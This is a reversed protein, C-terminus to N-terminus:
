RVSGRARPSRPQTISSTLDGPLRAIVSPPSPRTLPRPRRSGVLVLRSCAAAIQSVAPAALDDSRPGSPCGCLDFRRTRLKNGSRDSRACGVGEALTRKRGAKRDNVPGIKVPLLPDIQGTRCARPSHGTNACRPSMFIRVSPSSKHQSSLPLTPAGTM